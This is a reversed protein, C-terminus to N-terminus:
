SKWVPAVQPYVLSGEGSKLIVRWKDCRESPIGSFNISPNKLGKQTFIEKRALFVGQQCSQPAFFVLHKQQTRTGFIASEPPPHM